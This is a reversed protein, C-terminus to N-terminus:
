EQAVSTMRLWAPHAHKMLGAKVLIISLVSFGLIGKLNELHVICYLSNCQLPNVFQRNRINIDLHDPIAATFIKLFQFTKPLRESTEM